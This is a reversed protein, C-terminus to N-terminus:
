RSFVRPHMLAFRLFLIDFALGIAPDLRMLRRKVTPYVGDRRGGGLLCTLFQGSLLYPREGASALIHSTDIGM